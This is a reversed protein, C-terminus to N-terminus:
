REAELEIEGGSKTEIVSYPEIIFRFEGVSTAYIAVRPYAVEKRGASAAARAAHCGARACWWFCQVRDYPTSCRFPLVEDVGSARPGAVRPSKAKGLADSQSSPDLEARASAM